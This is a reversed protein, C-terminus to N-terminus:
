RLIGACAPDYCPLLTYVSVIILAFFADDDGFGLLGDEDGVVGGIDLCWVGVVGEDLQLFIKELDAISRVTNARPVKQM